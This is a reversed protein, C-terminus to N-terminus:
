YDVSKTSGMICCQSLYLGPWHPADRPIVEKIQGFYDSSLCCQVKILTINCSLVYLM